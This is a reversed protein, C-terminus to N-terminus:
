IKMLEKKLRQIKSICEKKQYNLNKLHLEEDKIKILIKKRDIDKKKSAFVKNFTEYNKM